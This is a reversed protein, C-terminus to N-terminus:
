RYPFLFMCFECINPFALSCCVSLSILVVSFSITKAHFNSCRFFVLVEVCGM